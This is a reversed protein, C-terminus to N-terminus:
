TVEVGIMGEVVADGTRQYGAASRNGRRHAQQTKRDLPQKQAPKAVGLERGVSRRQKRRAVQARAYADHERKRSAVPRPSRPSCPYTKGGENTLASLERPRLDAQTGITDDATVERGIARVRVDGCADIMQDLPYLM